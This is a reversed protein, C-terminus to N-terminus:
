KAFYVYVEDTEDAAVVLDARGDGNLDGLAVSHPAPMTTFTATRRPGSASDYVVTVNGAATNTFVVDDFGDKNIDGTALRASYRGSAVRSPMPTFRRHGDNRIWTLGDNTTNSAHGSYNAIAVDPRHDGNLDGVAVSFPLGAAFPSGPAHVFYAHGDGMLISVTGRGENPVVLDAAGDGDLDAAVVNWYPKRGVAVPLGPAKWNERGLLLMLRDEGWSDVVIDPRRDRDADLVAVMHPHPISHVHLTQATFGGKGNGLLLTLYDTEHNAVILDCKGDGNLDGAALAAPHPGATGLQAESFRRRGDNLFVALKQSEGAIAVDLHGDANVDALVLAAPHFGPPLRLHVAPDFVAGAPACALFVATLALALRPM